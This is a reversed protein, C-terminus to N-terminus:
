KINLEKQINYIKYKYSEISDINTQIKYNRDYYKTSYKIAIDEPDKYDSENVAINVFLIVFIVKFLTKM